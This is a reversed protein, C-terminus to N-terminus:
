GRVYSTRCANITPGFEVTTGYIRGVGRSVLPRSMKRANPTRLASAQLYIGCIRAHLIWGNKVVLGTGRLRHLITPTPSIRPTARTPIEMMM